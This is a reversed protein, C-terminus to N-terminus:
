IKNRRTRKNRFELYDIPKGWEFGKEKFKNILEKLEEAYNKTM